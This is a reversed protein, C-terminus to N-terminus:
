CIVASVEKGNQQFELKPMRYAPTGTVNQTVSLKNVINKGGDTHIQAPIGFKWFWEKCIIDTVTEAEKIEIGTVIANKTFANTICLM